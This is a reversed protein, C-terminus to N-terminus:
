PVLDPSENPLAMVQMLFVGNWPNAPLRDVLVLVVKKPLELPHSSTPSRISKPIHGPTMPFIQM